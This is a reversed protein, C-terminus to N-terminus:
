CFGKIELRLSAAAPSLGPLFPAPGTMVVWGALVVVVVVRTMHTVSEIM